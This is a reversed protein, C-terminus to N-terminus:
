AVAVPLKKSSSKKKRPIITPKPEMPELQEIRSRIPIGELQIHRLTDDWGQRRIPGLDDEDIIFEATVTVRVKLKGPGMEQITM